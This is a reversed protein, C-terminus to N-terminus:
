LESHSEPLSRFRRFRWRNRCTVRAGSDSLYPEIQICNTLLLRHIGFLPLMLNQFQLEQNGYAIVNQDCCESSMYESEISITRSHDAPGYALRDHETLHSEGGNVAM